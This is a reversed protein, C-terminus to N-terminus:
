WHINKCTWKPLVARGIDRMNINIGIRIRFTVTSGIKMSCVIREIFEKFGAFTNKARWEPCALLPVTIHSCLWTRPQGVKWSSESHQPLKAWPQIDIHYSELMNIHVHYAVQIILLECVWCLYIFQYRMMSGVAMTIFIHSIWEM